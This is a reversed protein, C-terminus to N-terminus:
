LCIPDKLICSTWFIVTPFFLFCLALPKKLTPFFAYLQTFMKWVGSFCVVTFILSSPLYTNLGLWICPMALKTVMYTSASAIDIADPHTDHFVSYDQFLLSFNNLPNTLVSNGLMKANYFYVFTDGGHYYYQHIMGFAVCSCLRLLLAPIFYPNIAPDLTKKYSDALKYIVAVYFPLLLYDTFGIVNFIDDM